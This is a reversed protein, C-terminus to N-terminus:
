EAFLKPSYTIRYKVPPPFVTLMNKDIMAEIYVGFGTLDNTKEAYQPYLPSM